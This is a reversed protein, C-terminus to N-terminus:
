SSEKIVINHKKLYNTVLGKFDDLYAIEVVDALAKGVNTLMVNGVLVEDNNNTDVSISTDGLILQVERNPVGKIVYGNSSDVKIVGLTELENLVEFSLGLQSMKEINADFPVFCVKCKYESKENVDFFSYTIYMGCIRRFARALSPTMETLVRIMNPPLTGPHDFEGALVKGWLLQLEESSVYKAADMFRDIIDENITQESIIADESINNCAIQAIKAQNKLGKIYKKANFIALIKTDTPLNSNQIDYIYTDLAINEIGRWNILHKKHLNRTKKM